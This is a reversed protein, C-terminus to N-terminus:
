YSLQVFSVVLACLNWPHCFIQIFNILMQYTCCIHSSKYNLLFYVIFQIFYTQIQINRLLFVSIFVFHRLLHDINDHFQLDFYHVAVKNMSQSYNFTSLLLNLHPSSLKYGEYPKSNDGLFCIQIDRLFNFQTYLM